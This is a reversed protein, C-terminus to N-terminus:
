AVTIRVIPRDDYATGAVYRRVAMRAAACEEELQQLAALMVPNRPDGVRDALDRSTRALHEAGFMAASAALDRLTQRLAAADHRSWADDIDIRLAEVSDCFTSLMSAIAVPDDLDEALAVLPAPNLVLLSM